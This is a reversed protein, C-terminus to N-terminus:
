HHHGGVGHAHGHAIEEDSAARVSQIEIEYMLTQGALPHNTDVTIMFKGPKTVTVHRAGQDTHVLAIMGARWQKHGAPLGQLHKIPVRMERDAEREGYAEEPALTVEFREGAQRGEMAVELGPIMNDHGHLYAMPDQGHNSELLEGSANKLTYFFQVVTDSAVVSM